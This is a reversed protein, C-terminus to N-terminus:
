LSVYRMIVETADSVKDMVAFIPFILVVKYISALCAFELNTIMDGVTYTVCLSSTRTM